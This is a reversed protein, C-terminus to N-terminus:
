PVKIQPKQWMLLSCLVAGVAFGLLILMQTNFGKVFLGRIEYELADPLKKITAVSEFMAEVEHLPLLSLSATKIWSNAVATTVSVGVAGGLFRFQVVTASAVASCLTLM